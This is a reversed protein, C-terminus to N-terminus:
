QFARSGEGYLLPMNIRFLGLLSYAEDEKRTVRRKCAWSMKEAITQGEFRDYRADSSMLIKTPIRTIEAMTEVFRLNYEQNQKIHDGGATRSDKEGVCDWENDFFRVIAPALLEQLTWGRTFWRSKRFSSGPELPDEGPPVDSLYAYCVASMYYWDFMSNIAESLEASSSKDICVTDIWVWEYGDKLARTCCGDIKADKPFGYPPKRAQVDKFTLEKDGWTRSLIAYRPTSDGTFERFQRTETHLLRPM